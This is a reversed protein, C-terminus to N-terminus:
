QNRGAAHLKAYHSPLLHRVSDILADRDAEDHAPVTSLLLNPQQHGEDRRKKRRKEAEAEAEAERWEREVAVEPYEGGGYRACSFVDANVALPNLLTTSDAPYLNPNRDRGAAQRLVAFDMQHLGVEASALFNGVLRSETYINRAAAQGDALRRELDSRLEVMRRQLTHLLRIEFAGRRFLKLMAERESLLQEFLGDVLSQHSHVASWEATLREWARQEESRIEYRGRSEGAMLTFISVAFFHQREQAKKMARTRLENMFLSRHARAIGHLIQAYGHAFARFAARENEIKARAIPELNAVVNDRERVYPSITVYAYYPFKMALRVPQGDGYMPVTTFDVSYDAFTQMIVFDDVPRGAYGIQDFIAATAGRASADYPITANITGLAASNLAFSGAPPLKPLRVGGGGGGGRNNNAALALQQQHQQQKRNSANSHTPSVMGLSSQQSARKLPSHGGAAAAADADGMGMSLLFGMGLPQGMTSHRQQARRLSSSISGRHGIAAGDAFSPSSASAEGGVDTGLLGDIIEQCLRTHMLYTQRPPYM